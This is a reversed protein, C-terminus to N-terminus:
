CRDGIEFQQRVGLLLGVILKDVLGEETSM